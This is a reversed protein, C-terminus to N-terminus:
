KRSVINKWPNRPPKRGICSVSRRIGNLGYISIRRSTMQNGDTVFRYQEMGLPFWPARNHTGQSITVWSSCVLGFLAFFCDMKANLITLLILRLKPDPHFSSYHHYQELKLFFNPFLTFVSIWCMSWISSSFAFGSDSLIDMADQKGPLPKGLELDFAATPIGNVRMHKSVFGKGSFVEIFGYAELTWNTPNNFAFWM